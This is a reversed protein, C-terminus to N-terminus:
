LVSQLISILLFTVFFSVDLPSSAFFEFRELISRVPIIFPETLAHLMMPIPNDEDLPLWSVLARAFLLLQLAGLFLSAVSSILEVVLRL